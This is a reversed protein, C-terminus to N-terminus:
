QDLLYQLYEKKLKFGQKRALQSMARDFKSSYQAAIKKRYAVERPLGLQLATERLIIKRIDNTIKLDPHIQMAYRVLDANLFPTELKIGFNLTIPIDRAFDRIEMDRLGDWLREHINDLDEGYAIHRKYGGFIEEAGLGGLVTTVKDKKALELVGYVVCGIGVHTVDTSQLLKVVKKILVEAEKLSYIKTKIKWGQKRAVQLSWYVDSSNEVAVTYLTPNNALLALVASDVGGSFAIGPSDYKEVSQKLLKSLEEIIQKRDKLFTCSVLEKRLAEFM